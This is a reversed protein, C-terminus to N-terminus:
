PIKEEGPQDQTQTTMSSGCSPLSAIFGAASQAHVIERDTVVLGCWVCRQSMSHPSEVFRHANM